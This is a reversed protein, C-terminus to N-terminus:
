ARHRAVGDESERAAPATAGEDPPAGGTVAGAQVAEEVAGTRRPFNPLWHNFVLNLVFVVIVTSTISSGFIVQFDSSFHQYFKPQITPILGISFSVAIILLNHNNPGGFTVKHLTQIGVATVMAFMVTAAGGVVPGPLAAVIAGVKPVLGLIVLGVGCVTVVWRSRVNTMSVLGVNEAYATDPFSNMFGALFASLGDVALGRALDNPRLDRGTLEGVALMDATSEVYTVLMVICMSIIAAAAFKPPGFHFPPAIGFWGSSGVSSFDVLGMPIAIITGLVIAILVSTQGLFGRLFRAFVVIMLVVVAALVIHSVQGADPNTTMAVAGDADLFPQGAANLEPIEPTFTSTKDGAILGINAGILSLGIMAIVTGTVLPPFYRIVMSFPKAIILGFIGAIIMAGYVYPLGDRGGYSNAIIIMPNLVTFTAGAVVPLRVGLIRGIGASQIISAVGCVLLDASVLIAIDSEDLGVAPGVILPVAIAGAYMIFLHQLGLVILRPLPLLEDVPHVPPREDTRTPSAM